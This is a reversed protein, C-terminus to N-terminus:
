VANGLPSEIQAAAGLSEEADDQQLLVLEITHSEIEHLSEEVVGEAAAVASSVAPVEEGAEAAGRM